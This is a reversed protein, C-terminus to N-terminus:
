ECENSGPLNKPFLSSHMRMAYSARIRAAYIGRSALAVMGDVAPDQAAEGVRMERMIERASSMAYIMSNAFPIPMRYTFDVQVRLKTRNGDGGNKPDDFDVEDGTRENVRQNRVRDSTGREFQHFHITHDSTAPFLGVPISVLGFTISGTWIARAM